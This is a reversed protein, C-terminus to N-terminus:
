RLRQYKLTGDLILSYLKSVCYVKLPDFVSPEKVVATEFRIKTGKSFDLLESKPYNLSFKMQIKFITYQTYEKSYIKMTFFISIIDRNHRM